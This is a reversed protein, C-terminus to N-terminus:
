IKKIYDEFDEYNTFIKTALAIIWPHGAMTTTIVYTPKQLIRSCYFLEMSTGFSEKGKEIIALTGATKEIARLDREMITKGDYVKTVTRPELLGAHIKDIDERTGNDYFPNLLEIDYKAEVKLEWERIELEMTLPHALYLKKM